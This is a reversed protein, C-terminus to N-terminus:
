KKEVEFDVARIMTKTWMLPKAQTGSAGEDGSEVAKQAALVDRARIDQPNKWFERRLVKTTASLEPGNNNAISAQLSEVIDQGVIALAKPGNYKTFKLAEALKEGWQDAERAIMPRFFPRPPSPFRGGHGFENWYAVQAVPTGDTYNSGSLFGVKVRSNSLDKGIKALVKQIKKGGKLAM